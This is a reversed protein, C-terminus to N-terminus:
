FQRRCVTEIKVLRFNPTQYHTLIGDAVQKLESWDLIKTTQFHTLNEDASAKM